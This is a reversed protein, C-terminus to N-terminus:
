AENIEKILENLDTFEGCTVLATLSVGLMGHLNVNQGTFFLNPIKTKPFVYTEMPKHYDRMIGYMGGDPTGIYDRLTLPTSASYDKVNNKIEPFRSSVLELLKEAKEAKWNKYDRGREHPLLGAWREVEEYKMYTLVTVCDSYRDNGAKAPTFLFFYEPWKEPDYGSAYWVDDKQWQHYNYNLYPFTDKELQIHLGFASITNKLNMIRNRYSKRLRSEDMMGFTLAPHINSIFREAFFTEGDATEVGTLLKDNFIFRNAKKGTLVTGGQEEINEVFRVALQDSGDILKYASNIYYNNILAHTYFPSTEKTGAYNFNQAALVNQLTTNGTISRIYEYAGMTLSKSNRIDYNIPTRLNYIDVEGAAARIDLVYKEVAKKEEPFYSIMQEKFHQHGIPYKYEIGGINFVEFGDEDMRKLKLKNLIGFYRFMRNMVQGDDFSGIYHMGSSFECSGRQFGQLTGGTKPNKELVCVKYGKKGLIYACELGGLGAGIIIIDYKSDM